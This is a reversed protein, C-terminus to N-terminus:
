LEYSEGFLKEDLTKTTEYQTKFRKLQAALKTFGKKRDKSSLSEIWIHYIRDSFDKEGKIRGLVM